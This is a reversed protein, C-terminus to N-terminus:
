RSQTGRSIDVTCAGQNSFRYRNRAVWNYVLEGVFNFAPFFFAMVGAVLLRRWTRWSEPPLAILAALVLYMAPNYLLVMKCARFGAYIRGDVAVHVRQELAERAIGFRDGAGRQFPQWDSVRDFDMRGWWRRIDNCIGCDGDFLVLLERPWTVFALVMAEMVYFFMTFTTGTFELLSAQFLVNLWLAWPLAPRYLLMVALALEIAITSYCFLKALALDPLLPSLTLYVPQQLRSGAWHHFFQGTQWDPDLLKNLGAGFYVLAFQLRLFATGLKPEWLGALVLAIGCMTKNNGYYAKSSVVALLITSGLVLASLRVARNFLLAIAAAIFVAKMTWQFAKSFALADIPIFPLFPDPLLRQHNTLLLSLAVLKALLLVPIPLPTGSMRLPNWSAAVAAAM